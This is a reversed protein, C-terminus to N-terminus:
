SPVSSSVNGGRGRGRFGRGGGRGGRELHSSPPGGRGRFGGRDFGGRAAFPPPGGRLGGRGGRGESAVLAGQYTSPASNDQQSHDILGEDGSERSSLHGGQQHPPAGRGNAFGGRGRGNIVGGRGRNPNSM